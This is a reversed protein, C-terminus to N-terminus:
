LTQHSALRAVLVRDLRPLIEVITSAWVEATASSPFGWGNIGDIALEAVGFAARCFVPCGSRLAEQFVVPLGDAESLDADSCPMLLAHSCDLLTLAEEHPLEGMFEVNEMLGLAECQEELAPRLPGTGAIRFLVRHGLAKIEAVIRLAFALDKQPVLRAVAALHIRETTPPPTVNPCSRPLLANRRMVVKGAAKNGLRGAVFGKGFWTVTEIVDARNLIFHMLRPLDYLDSAHCVVRFRSHSMPAVLAAIVSTKGLFHATITVSPERMLSPLLRASLYIAKLNTKRRNCLLLACISIPQAIVLRALAAAFEGIESISLIRLFQPDAIDIVRTASRNNSVREIDARIFTHTTALLSEVLFLHSTM